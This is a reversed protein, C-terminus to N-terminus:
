LFCVGSSCARDFGPLDPERHWVVDRLPVCSSHLWAHPDKERVSEDLQCAMEFEMPSNEYLDMWEDDSQNPCMWCMSRPPEPWGMEKTVLVISQHRRMPVDQILPLRIRGAKFDETVMMRLARRSEDLSFGIWKRIEAKKIGFRRKLYNETVEVKWWKSCFGDLKGTSGITQNTFAPILMTNGNKNWLDQHRYAYEDRSPRHVEIGIAALAPATVTNMYEWTSARERGTDAIVVFDPRSLRGQIILAAIATSQTGGGSNFVEIMKTTVTEQKM